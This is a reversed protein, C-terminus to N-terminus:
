REAEELAALASRAHAVVEASRERGVFVNLGIRLQELLAQLKSADTREGLQLKRCHASTAARATTEGIHPALVGVIVDVAQPTRV